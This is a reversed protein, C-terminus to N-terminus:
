VFVVHHSVQICVWIVIEVLKWVVLFIVASKIWYEKDTM